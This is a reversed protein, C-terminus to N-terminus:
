NGNLLEVAEEIALLAAASVPLLHMVEAIGAVHAEVEAPTMVPEAPVAKKRTRKPAPPNRQLLIEKAEFSPGTRAGKAIVALSEDPVLEPKMKALAVIAAYVAEVQKGAAKKLAEKGKSTLAKVVEPTKAKKLASIVANKVKWGDTSSFISNICDVLLDEDVEEGSLVTEVIEISGYSILKKIIEKSTSPNRVLAKAVQREDWRSGYGASSLGHIVWLALASLAEVPSSPNGAVAEKVAADESDALETLKDPSLNPNSIAYKGLREDILAKELRDASLNPHAAVDENDYVEAKSASDFISNIVDSPAKKNGVLVKLIQRESWSFDDYERNSYVKNFVKRMLDQNSSNKIVAEVVDSDDSLAFDALIDDPTGSNEALKVKLYDDNVKSLKRIVEQNKSNIALKTLPSTGYRRVSQQYKILNDVVSELAETTTKDNYAAALAVDEDSDKVLASLIEPTAYESSAVAKRVDDDDDKSLEVLANTPLNKNALSRRVSVIDKKKNFIELLKAPDDVSEIVYQWTDPQQLMHRHAMATFELLRAGIDQELVQGLSHMQDESDWLQVFQRNGKQLVLAVKSWKDRLPKTRDIIFYFFKNESSYSDFRNAMKGSICWKTGLGYHCSAEMSLPHLVIYNDDSYMYVADKKAKTRKAAKDAAKSSGLSELATLVDQVTKYQYIDKNAIRPLNDHFETFAGIVDEVDEGAAIQKAAWEIYKKNPTPDSQSAEDIEEEYDPYKAKLDDVKAATVLVAAEAAIYLAEIINSYM